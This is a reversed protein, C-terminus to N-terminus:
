LYRLYSGRTYTTWANFSGQRKYIKYAIEVNIDPNYFDNASYGYYSYWFCGVQWLSFSGICTGHNDSWNVADQNGSSEAMCIAYATSQPWDYNYALECGKRSTEQVPEVVTTVTEIPTQNAVEVQDVTPETVVVEEHHQEPTSNNLVPTTSPLLATM